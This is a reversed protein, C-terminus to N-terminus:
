GGPFPGGTVMTCSAPHAWSGTQVCLICSFKKLFHHIVSIQIWICHSKSGDEAFIHGNCYETEGLCRLSEELIARTRDVVPLFKRGKASVASARVNRKFVSYTSLATQLLVEYMHVWKIIFESSNIFRLVEVTCFHLTSLFYHKKKKSTQCKRPVPFHFYYLWLLKMYIVWRNLSRIYRPWIKKPRNLPSIHRAQRRTDAQHRNSLVYM